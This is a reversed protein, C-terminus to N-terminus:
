EGTRGAGPCAPGAALGAM